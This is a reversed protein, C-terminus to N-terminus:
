RQRRRRAALGALALLSLTVTAPEPIIKTAVNTGVVLEVAEGYAVGNQMLQIKTGEAIDIAGVETYGLTFYPTTLGEANVSGLEVYITGGDFSFICGDLNMTSGLDFTLRTEGGVAVDGTFTTNGEIYISGATTATLSAAVAGDLMTFVGGDLTTAIQLEGANTVTGAKCVFLRDVASGSDQIKATSAVVVDAKSSYGVYMEETVHMVAKDELNVQTTSGNDVYDRASDSWTGLGLFSGKYDNLKVTADNVTIMVQSNKWEGTHLQGNLNMVSGSKVNVVSTSGESYGLLVPLGSTSFTSNELVNLEGEGMTFEKVGSAIMESNGTVTVVGRGFETNGAGETYAGQFRNTLDTNDSMEGGLVGQTTAHVIQVHSSLPSSGSVRYSQYGLVFYDQKSGDYKGGNQIILTGNGDAGGINTTVEKDTTVTANDIIMVSDKGAVSLMNPSDGQRHQGGGQPNIVLTNHTDTGGVLLEGERVYIASGSIVDSTITAQGAGDKADIRYGEVTDAKADLQMEGSTTITTPTYYGAEATAAFLAAM